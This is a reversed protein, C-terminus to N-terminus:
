NYILSKTERVINKIASVTVASGTIIAFVGDVAYNVKRILVLSMIASLTIFCDLFSDLSLAKIVSSEEKKNFARFMFGIAIKVGVTASLVAVHTAACRVPIPYMM